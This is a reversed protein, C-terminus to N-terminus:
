GARTIGAKHLVESAVGLERWAAYSIGKRTAYGKAVSVFGVELSDLDAPEGGHGELEAQLDRREQILQLRKLSSADAIQSEITGLRQGISEATRRRGRRPRQQELADLYAKIFQGEKRGDAMAQKHENTLAKPPM